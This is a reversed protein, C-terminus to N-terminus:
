LTGSTDTHETSELSFRHAGQPMKHTGSSYTHKTSELSFHNVGHKLLCFLPGFFGPYEKIIKLAFPTIETIVSHYIVFSASLNLMVNFTFDKHTRFKHFIFTLYVTFKRKYTENRTIAICM